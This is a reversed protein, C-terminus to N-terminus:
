LPKAKRRAIAFRVALFAGGSLCWVWIPVRFTVTLILAELFWEFGDCAGRAAWLAWVLAGLAAFLLTFVALRLHTKM